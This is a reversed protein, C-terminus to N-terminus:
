DLEEYVAPTRPQTKPTKVAKQPASQRTKPRAEPKSIREIWEGKDPGKKRKGKASGAGVPRLYLEYRGGSGVDSRRVRERQYGKLRVMLGRRDGDDAWVLVLPTVGLVSKGRTVTAGPPVTVLMTTGQTREPVDDNEVAVTGADDPNVRPAQPVAPPEASTSGAGGGEVAVDSAPSATEGMWWMTAAGGVGLLALAALAMPWPTGKHVKAAPQAQVSPGRSSLGTEAPRLESPERDSPPRAVAPAVDFTTPGPVAPMVDSMATPRARRGPATDTVTSPGGVKQGAPSPEYPAGACARLIELAELAGAPRHLPYKSLCAYIFDPLRGTLRRGDLEMEPVDYEVHALMYEAVSGCLFPPRGALMEYLVVALAYLDARADVTGASAQEPAMYRPSGLAVGVGTLNPDQGFGSVKAIGFDLIKVFDPRGFLETVFLNDPKLDRHVIGVSHAESLSELVQIGIRIVRDADLPSERKLLGSLPEGELFEMVLYLTGDEAQGFDILRITNPHNLAAVSRAEQQFRAITTLDTVRDANLVKLAVPRGVSLQTARYVTGMGGRGLVGEVRYRGECIRGVRPDNSNSLLGEDVTQFGDDECVRSETRLGCQPCIRMPGKMSDYEADSSLAGRSKTSNM